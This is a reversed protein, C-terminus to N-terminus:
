KVFALLPAAADARVEPCTVNAPPTGDRIIMGALDNYGLYKAVCPALENQPLDMRAGFSLLMMVVNDRNTAVALMLPSVMVPRDGTLDADTFALPANPDTGADIFAYADEVEGHQIADALSNFSAKSSSATTASRVETAAIWLGGLIAPLALMLAILRTRSGLDAIRM